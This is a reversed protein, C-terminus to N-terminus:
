MGEEQPYSWRHSRGNLEKSAAGKENLRKLDLCRCDHHFVELVKSIAKRVVKYYDGRDKEM